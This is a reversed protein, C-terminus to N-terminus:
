LKIWNEPIIDSTNEKQAVGFWSKPTIVIKDKNRNLYAGWWSFTSSSNIHHECHSIDILDQEISNGESFECDDRYDFNSKCWQIDDSFFKFKFRKFEMVSEKEMSNMMFMAQRIWEIPVPPHKETLTLYDGRRVHVSVVGKKMEWPFGFANLIDERYEKFYKETQRYGDIVINKHRWDEQFPIEQFNHQTEEIYITEVNKIYNPNQLHKVYIPSHFEDSTEFPVTFELNHKKAYAYATACEFLFNGCRGAPVFTVM